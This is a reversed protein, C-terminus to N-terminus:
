KASGDCRRIISTCFAQRDRGATSKCRTIAEADAAQQTAQVAWGVGPTGPKPDEVSTACQNTFTAVVHCQQQSALNGQKKCEAVAREKAQKEDAYNTALGVSYGRQPGGPAIGEAVAGAADARIPCLTAAALLCLGVITRHSNNM